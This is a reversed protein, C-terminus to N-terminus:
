KICLNATRGCETTGCKAMLIQREKGLGHRKGDKYEGEYVKGNSFIDKGRGHRKNNKWEGEYVGGNSYTYKGRGHRRGDM